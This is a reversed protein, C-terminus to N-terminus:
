VAYQKIRRGRVKLMVGTTDVIVVPKSEEILDDGLDLADYM